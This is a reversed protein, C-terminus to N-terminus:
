FFFAGFFDPFCRSLSSMGAKMAGLSSRRSRHISISSGPSQSTSWAAIKQRFNRSMENKRTVSCQRYSWIAERWTQETKLTTAWRTEHKSCKNSCFKISIRITSRRPTWPNRLIPNAASERNEAEIQACKKSCSRRTPSFRCFKM